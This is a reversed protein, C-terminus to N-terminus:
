SGITTVSTFTNYGCTEGGGVTATCIPQVHVVTEIVIVSPPLPLIDGGVAIVPAPCSSTVPQVTYDCNTTWTGGASTSILPAITGDCECHDQACVPNPSMDAALIYACAPTGNRGPVVVQSAIISQSATATSTGSSVTTLPAHNPHSETSKPQGSSVRTHTADTTLGPNPSGATSTFM